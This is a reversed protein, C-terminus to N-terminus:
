NIVKLQILRLLSKTYQFISIRNVCSMSLWYARILDRTLLKKYNLYFFNILYKEKDFKLIKPSTASELDDSDNSFVTYSDFDITPKELAASLSDEYIKNLYDNWGIGCHNFEINKAIQLSVEDRLEANNIASEVVTLLEEENQSHTVIKGIGPDNAVLLKEAPAYQLVPYAGFYIAEFLSTFSAFPMCDLYIDAAKYFIIPNEVLGVLEIRSDPIYGVMEADDGSVGIVKVFVNANRDVISKVFRFYNYKEDPIFKYASAVTLIVVTNPEIGLIDRAEKKSPIAAKEFDLPIPLINVKKALRRKISFSASWPRICAVVDSLSCGLSFVHDAHNIFIIPQTRNAALAVLSLADDPHIHLFVFDAFKKVIRRIKLANDWMDASDSLCHVKGGSLEIANILWVPVFGSDQRTIILYHCSEVDRKVLNYLLRTHGGVYFVSTAIHVVRKKEATAPQEFTSDDIESGDISENAAIRESLTFIKKEIECDSYLGPHYQWAFSALINIKKISYDFDDDKDDSFFGNKLNKYICNYERLITESETM